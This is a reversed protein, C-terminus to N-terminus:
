PHVIQGEYKYLMSGFQSVVQASLGIDIASHSLDYVFENFATDSLPIDPINSNSDHHHASYMDPGTYISDASGAAMAIFQTMATSM